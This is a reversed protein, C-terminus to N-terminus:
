GSPTSTEPLNSEESLRGYIYVFVDRAIAAAPVVIIVGLLGFVAGGVVLLIMIAAPNMNVADGQVKPVLFTNEVQQIVVFLIIVAWIKSPDTALVVIVGAVGSIWPGLIPIM